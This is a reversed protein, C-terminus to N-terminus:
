RNGSGALVRDENFSPLHSNEKMIWMEQYGWEAVLWSDEGKLTGSWTNM